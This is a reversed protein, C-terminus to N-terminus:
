FQNAVSSTVELLRYMSVHNSVIRKMLELERGICHTPRGTILAREREEPKRRGELLKLFRDLGHVEMKNLGFSFAKSLTGVVGINISSALRYPLSHQPM